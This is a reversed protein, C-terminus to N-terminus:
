KKKALYFRSLVQEGPFEDLIKFYKEFSSLYTEKKFIVAQKKSNLYIKLGALEKETIRNQKYWNDLLTLHKKLNDSYDQYYIKEDKARWTSLLLLWRLDNVNINKQHDYHSIIEAFSKFQFTKDFYGTQEFFYGTNKLWHNINLFLKPLDVRSVMNVAWDSLVLDFHNQPLSAKLWDANILVEQNYNQKMFRRMALQMNHNIDISTLHWGRALCLDRLEPTSGLVLTKINKKKILQSLYKRYIKISYPSVRGPPLTVRWNKVLSPISNDPFYQSLNKKLTM